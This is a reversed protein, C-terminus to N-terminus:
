KVELHVVGIRLCSLQKTVHDERHLAHLIGGLDVSANEELQFSFAFPIAEVDAEGVVTVVM